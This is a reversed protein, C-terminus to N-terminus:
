YLLVSLFMIYHLLFPFYISELIYKYEKWKRFFKNLLFKNYGVRMSHIITELGKEKMGHNMKKKYHSIYTYHFHLSQWCINNAKRVQVVVPSEINVPLTKIGNRSKYPLTLTKVHILIILKLM